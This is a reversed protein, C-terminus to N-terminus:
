VSLAEPQEAFSEKRSWSVMKKRENL